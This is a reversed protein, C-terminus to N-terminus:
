IVLRPGRIVDGATISIEEVSTKILARGFQDIGLFLGELADNELIKVPKGLWAARAHWDGLLGDVDMAALQSMRVNWALRVSEALAEFAPLQDIHHSLCTATEPLGSPDPGLNMGIGCLVEILSSGPRTTILIGSLKQDGVLVDNPWKLRTECNLDALADTIALGSGIAIMGTHQVPVAVERVCTLALSSGRPSDWTRGNRGRGATQTRAVIAQGPLLERRDLMRRAEDMTSDVTDRIILNPFSSM